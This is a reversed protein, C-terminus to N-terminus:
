CHSRLATKQQFIAPVFLAGTFVITVAIQIGEILLGDGSFPESQLYFANLMGHLIASPIVSNSKIRFLSILISLLFLHIFFLSTGAFPSATFKYFLAIPLHWVSWVIASFLISKYFGFGKTYHFLYGRWVVEEFLASVSAVTLGIIWLFFFSQFFAAGFLDEDFLLKIGVLKFLTMIIPLVMAIFFWRNVTFSLGLTHVIPDSFLSKHVLLVAILPLIMAVGLLQFDGENTGGGTFQLAVHFITTLFYILGIVIMLKTKINM